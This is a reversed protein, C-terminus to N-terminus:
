FRLWSRYYICTVGLVMSVPSGSQFKKLKQLQVKGARVAARFRREIKPWDQSTSEFIKIM